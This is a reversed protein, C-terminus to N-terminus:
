NWDEQDYNTRSDCIVGESKVEVVMIAPAEYLEKETTEMFETRNM